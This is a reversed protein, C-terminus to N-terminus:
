GKGWEMFKENEQMMKAERERKQLREFKLDRKRGTKDRHVTEAGKGSVSADMKAFM